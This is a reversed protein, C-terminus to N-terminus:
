GNNSQEFDGLSLSHTMLLAFFPLFFLPLRRKGESGWLLGSLGERITISKSTTGLYEDLYQTQAMM